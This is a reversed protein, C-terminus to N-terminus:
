KMFLRPTVTNLPAWGSGPINQLLFNDNQNGHIDAFEAEAM